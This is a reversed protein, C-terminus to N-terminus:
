VVVTAPQPRGVAVRELADAATAAGHEARITAGIRAAADHIATDRLARDLAGALTRETLRTRPVVVGAGIRAVRAANDPQDHSYPVLVAPRGSRLAQATTGIGAQHVIARARAFLAAHPAYAMVHVGPPVPDPLPGPEDGVLMVARVGLRTAARAALVHFDGPVWVASSGLTFAVPPDGADLFARLKPDLGADGEEDHFPFGTAIATRPWDRQPPAFHRSFLALVLPADAPFALFARTMARLGWERRLRRLEGLTADGLLRMAGWLIRGPWPALARVPAWGFPAIMGPDWGSLMAVPQLTVPVYPIGLREAVSGAGLVLAGAVLVEAGDAGALVDETTRRLWPLTMRRLVYDSGTWPDMARRLVERPEPGLDSLDPRLQTAPLGARAVREHHGIHTIMRVDHGRQALTRAVTLLPYLDGLSGFAAFAFRAM